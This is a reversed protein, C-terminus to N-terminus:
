GEGWGVGGGIESIWQKGTEEETSRSSKINSYKSPNVFGTYGECVSEVKRGKM